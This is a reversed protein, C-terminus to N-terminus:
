QPKKEVTVHTPLPTLSTTAVNLCHSIRLIVHQRIAIGRVCAPTELYAWSASYYLRFTQSPRRVPGNDGVVALSVCVEIDQAGVFSMHGMTM